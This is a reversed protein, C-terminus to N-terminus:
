KKHLTFFHMDNHGRKYEFITLRKNTPITVDNKTYIKYEKGRYSKINIYGAKPVGLGKGSYLSDEGYNFKVVTIEHTKVLEAENNNILLIIAIFFVAIFTLSKHTRTM